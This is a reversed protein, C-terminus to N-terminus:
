NEVARLLFWVLTRYEILLLFSGFRIGTCGVRDPVRLVQVWVTHATAARM